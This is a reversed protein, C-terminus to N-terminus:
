SRIRRKAEHSNMFPGARAALLEISVRETGKSAQFIREKWGMKKVIIDIRSSQPRWAGPKWQAVIATHSSSAPLLRTGIGVTRKRQPVVKCM